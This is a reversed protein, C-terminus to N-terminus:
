ILQYYTCMGKSSKQNKQIVKQRIDCVKEIIEEEPIHLSVLSTFESEIAQQIIKKIKSIELDQNQNSLDVVISHM